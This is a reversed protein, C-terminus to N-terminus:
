PKAANQQAAGQFCDSTQYPKWVPLVDYRFCISKPDLILFDTWFTHAEMLDTPPSDVMGLTGLILKVFGIAMTAYLM